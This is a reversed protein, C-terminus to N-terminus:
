PVDEFLVQTPAVANWREQMRHGAANAEDALLGEIDASMTHGSEVAADLVAAALAKEPSRGMVMSYGREGGAIVEAETVVVEVFNFPLRESPEEARTMLLGVVPERIVDVELSEMVQDALRVLLGCDAGSIAEFREERNM